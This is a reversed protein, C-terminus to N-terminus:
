PVVEDEKKEKLMSIQLFFFVTSWTGNLFNNNYMIM